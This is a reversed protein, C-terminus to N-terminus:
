VAVIGDPDRRIAPRSCAPNGDANLDAERACVEGVPEVAGLRTPNNSANIGPQM